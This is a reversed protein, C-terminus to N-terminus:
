REGLEHAIDSPGKNTADASGASAASAPNRAALKAKAEQAEWQARNLKSKLLAVEYELSKIKDVAKGSSEAEVSAPSRDSSTRGEKDIEDLAKEQSKRAEAIRTASEGMNVVRHLGKLARFTEGIPPPFKGTSVSLTLLMVFVSVALHRFVTSLIQTM